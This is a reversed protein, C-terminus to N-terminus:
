RTFRLLFMKENLDSTITQIFSTAKINKRSIYSEFERYAVMNIKTRMTSHAIWSCKGQTCALKGHIRTTAGLYFLVSAIHSCSEALGAKCGCCHASLITEDNESIVWIIVVHDNIRQSFRVRARM